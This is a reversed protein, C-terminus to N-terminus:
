EFLCDYVVYLYFALCAADLPMHTYWAFALWSGRLTYRCAPLQLAHHGQSASICLLAATASVSMLARALSFAWLISRTVNTQKLLLSFLSQVASGCFGASYVCFHTLVVNGLGCARIVHLNTMQYALFALVIIIVNICVMYVIARTSFLDIHM